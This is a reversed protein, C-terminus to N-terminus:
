FAMDYVVELVCSGMFEGFPFLFIIFKDHKIHIESVSSADVLFYYIVDFDLTHHM